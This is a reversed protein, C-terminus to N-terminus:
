TPVAEKDKTREDKLRSIIERALVDVWKLGEVGASGEVLLRAIDMSERICRDYEDSAALGNFYESNADEPHLNQCKPCRRLGDEREQYDGCPSKRDTQPCPMAAAHWHQFVMWLSDLARRLKQAHRLVTVANVPPTDWTALSKTDHLAKEVLEKTSTM